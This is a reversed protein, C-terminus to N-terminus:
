PLLVVQAMIEALPQQASGGIGDQHKIISSTKGDSEPKETRQKAAALFFGAIAGRAFRPYVPCHLAIGNWRDPDTILDVMDIGGIQASKIVGDLKRNGRLAHAAKDGLVMKPTKLWLRCPDIANGDIFFCRRPLEVACGLNRPDGATAVIDTGNFQGLLGEIVACGQKPLLPKRGSVDNAGFVIDIIEIGIDFNRPDDGSELPAGLAGETEM